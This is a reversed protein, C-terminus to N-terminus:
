TETLIKPIKEIKEHPTTTAVELPAEFKNYLTNIRDMYSTLILSKANELKNREKLWHEQNKKIEEKQESYSILASYTSSLLVDSARLMSDGCITSEIKSLRKSDCWNPKCEANASITFIATTALLITIKKM